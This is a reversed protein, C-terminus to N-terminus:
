DIWTIQWFYQCGKDANLLNLRAVENEALDESSVVKKVTIKNKWPIDDSQFLDIRVIAYGRRPAHATRTM